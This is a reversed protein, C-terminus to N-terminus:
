VTLSTRYSHQFYFINQLISIQDACQDWSRQQFSSPCTWNRGNTIKGVRCLRSCRWFNSM